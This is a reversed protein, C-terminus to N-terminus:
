SVHSLMGEVLSAAIDPWGLGQKSVHMPLLLLLLMGAMDLVEKIEVAMLVKDVFEKVKEWKEVPGKMYIFKGPFKAKFHSSANKNPM